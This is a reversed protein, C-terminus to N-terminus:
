RRPPPSTRRVQAPALAADFVAVEDLRGQFPGFGDSRTGFCSRAPTSTRARWHVSNRSQGGRRRSVGERRRRSRVLAVHHWANLTLPTRGSVMRRATTSSCSTARRARSAASAWTTAPSRTRRRSPTGPRSYFYGRSPRRIRSPWIAPTSLDVARAHLRGSAPHAARGDSSRRGAGQRHGLLQRSQQRGRLRGLGTRASRRRRADRRKSLHRGRRGAGRRRCVDARRKSEASRCRGPRRSRCRSRRAKSRWSTSCSSSQPQNQFTASGVVRVPAQRASDAAPPQIRARSRDQRKRDRGAQGDRRRAPRRRAPRSQRRFGNSRALQM